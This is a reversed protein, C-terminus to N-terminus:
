VYIKLNPTGGKKPIVGDRFSIRVEGDGLYEAAFKASDTTVSDITGAYNIRLTAFSLPDNAFLRVTDTSLEPKPVKRTIPANVTATKTWGEFSVELTLKKNKKFAGTLMAAGTEPDVDLWAPSATITYSLVDAGTLTLKGTDGDLVVSAKVNPLAKDPVLNLKKTRIVNGNSLTIDIASSRKKAGADATVIYSRDDIVSITYESAAKANVFKVGTVSGAPETAQKGPTTLSIELAAGHTSYIPVKLKKVGLVAEVVDDLSGTVEVRCAAFRDGMRVTVMANGPSIASVVGSSDVTVCDSSSEWRAGGIASATLNATQGAELLIYRAVLMSLNEAHDYSDPVILYEGGRELPIGAYGNVDIPYCGVYNLAGGECVYVNASMSAYKEGLFMGMLALLNFEDKETTSLQFSPLNGTLQEIIERPITNADISAGAIFGGSPDLVGDPTVTITLNENIVLVLTVGKDAMAELLSAPLRTDNVIEIALTDGASAANIEDLIDNQDAAVVVSASRSAFATGTASLRVYHAGRMLGTVENGACPTWAEDSARRYEMSPSVGTIRKVGGAVGSPAAPRDPLEFSERAGTSTQCYLIGGIYESISGGDAIARGGTPADYVECEAQEYYITEAAFDLTIASELAVIVKAMESAFAADTAKIRVFYVGTANVNTRTGEPCDTWADKNSPRYEMRPGTSIISFVGGAVEPEPARSPLELAHRKTGNKNAYYIAKGIHETISATNEITEDGTESTYVSYQEADYRIT